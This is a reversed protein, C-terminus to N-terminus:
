LTTHKGKKKSSSCGMTCLEYKYTMLSIVGICVRILLMSFLADTDFGIGRGTHVKRQLCNGM